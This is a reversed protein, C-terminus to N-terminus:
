YNFTCQALSISKNQDRYMSSQSNDERYMNETCGVRHTKHLVELISAEFM